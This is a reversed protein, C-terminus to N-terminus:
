KEKEDWNKTEQCCEEKHKVEKEYQIRMKMNEKKNM